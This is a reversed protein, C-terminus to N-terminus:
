CNLPLKITNRKMNEFILKVSFLQQCIIFFVKGLLFTGLLFLKIYQLFHPCCTSSKATAQGCQPVGVSSPALEEDLSEVLARGLLADDDKELLNVEFGVDCCVALTVVEREDLLLPPACM